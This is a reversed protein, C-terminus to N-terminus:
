SADGYRVEFQMAARDAAREAQVVGSARGASSRAAFRLSLTVAVGDCRPCRQNDAMPVPSSSPMDACVDDCALAVDVDVDVDVDATACSALVPFDDCATFSTRAFLYEACCDAAASPTSCLRIMPEPVTSSM